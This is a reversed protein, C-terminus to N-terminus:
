SGSSTASRVAADVDGRRCASECPHTCVRGISAPFPNTRRVVELAEKYRGAATLTVYAHANVEAPCDVRCPSIGQKDVTVIGPVAQAYRRNIATRKVLGQDYESPVFVPCKEVCAM